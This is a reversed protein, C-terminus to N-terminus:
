SASVSQLTWLEAFAKLPAGHRATISEWPNGQVEDDNMRDKKVMTRDFLSPPNEAIGNTVNILREANVM